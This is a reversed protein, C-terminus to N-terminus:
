TGRLRPPQEAEAETTPRLYVLYENLGVKLVRRIVYLEGRERVVRGAALRGIRVERETRSVIEYTVRGCARCEFYQDAEDTPGTLGRQVLIIDTSGCAPCVRTEEDAM